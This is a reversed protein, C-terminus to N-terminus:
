PTLYTNKKYFKIIDGNIKVGYNAYYIQSVNIAVVTKFEELNGQVYSGEEVYVPGGSDGNTMDADYALLNTTTHNPLINGSAKFRLGYESNEYGAPYTQPFGSVIVQGEDDVYEDLAMGLNFM